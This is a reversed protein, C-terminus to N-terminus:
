KWQLVVDKHSYIKFKERLKNILDSQTM